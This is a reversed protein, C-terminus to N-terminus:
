ASVNDDEQEPKNEPHEPNSCGLMGPGTRECGCGPCYSELHDQRMDRAAELDTDDYM